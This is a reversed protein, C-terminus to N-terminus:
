RADALILEAARAAVAMAPGNTNGSVTTPFISCDVVRLGDVGHVRCRADTVSTAADTGMRCTGTGHLGAEGMEYAARRLSDPDAVEAGPSRERGVYPALAPAAAFERLKVLLEVAKDLDAPDRWWSLDVAPATDVDAAVIEVKGRSKPHLHYGSFTIGPKTSIPSGPEAVMESVTRMAFPAAALQFDPQAPNGTSSWLMTAPMGVRALPGTRTLFYRLANRYLRWGLFERNTGPHNHLDFSIGIKHHDHLNAGVAPLDRVLGIGHQQLLAGPGIGSLQLLQPSRYVGASVIVERRASVTRRGGQTRLALGTARGNEMVIREVMTYTAITVNSRHRVPALFAEYSSARQGRRDVTYQSRGIGERAPACIDDVRPVGLHEGAALIARFVSSDHDSPTIELPGDRGRSPDAGLAAYSEIDRFCRSIEDWGWGDLGSARWADYDAPQGRLYWTGNIASSGGLGKGYGHREPRRGDVAAVPFNWFYEPRGMIKVFGGAMRIFPSHNEGGADILLVQNHPDASLRNALVCGASGAGVIIYDFSTM